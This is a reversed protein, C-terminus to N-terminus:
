EGKTQTTETFAHICLLLGNRISVAATESQMVNSIGRTKYPYLIENNLPYALNHTKVGEVKGQLPILSVTQGPQGSITAHDRILFMERRGDVLRVNLSSLKPDTILFINGLTQDIRNGIAAAIWITNVGMEQAAALAQELDTEDKHTPLRRIEVGQSQLRAVEAPDASDLDGIILDPELDFTTIYRLGGDVAILVDDPRLRARFVQPSPLDGNVFLIARKGPKTM